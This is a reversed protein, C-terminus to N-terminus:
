LMNVLRQMMQLVRSYVPISLNLILAAAVFEVTKGLRGGSQDCLESVMRSSLGVCLVKMLLPIFDMPLEAASQAQRFFQLAPELFRLGALAAMVSTLLIALIGFDKGRGDLSLVILCATLCASIVKFYAAM